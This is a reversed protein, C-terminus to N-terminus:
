LVQILSTYNRQQQAYRLPIINATYTIAPSGNATVLQVGLYRKTQSWPAISFYIPLPTTTKLLLAAQANTFPFKALVDPATLAAAASQIVQWEYTETGSTVAATNVQMQIVLGEGGSIDIVDGTTGGTPAVGVDYANTSVVTGIGSVVQAAALQAQADLFM